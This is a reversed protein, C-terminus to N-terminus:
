FFGLLGFHLVHFCKMTVRSNKFVNTRTRKKKRGQFDRYNRPIWNQDLLKNKNKKTGLNLLSSLFDDIIM